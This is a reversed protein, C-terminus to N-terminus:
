SVLEPWYRAFHSTGDLGPLQQNTETTVASPLESRAVNWTLYGRFRASERPLYPAAGPRDDQHTRYLTTPDHASRHPGPPANTVRDPCPYQRQLLLRTTPGILISVVAGVM